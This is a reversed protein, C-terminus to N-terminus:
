NLRWKTNGEDDEFIDVKVDSLVPPPLTFLPPLKKGNSQIPPLILSCLYM